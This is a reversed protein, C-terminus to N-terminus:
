RGAGGRGDPAAPAVWRELCDRIAIALYRADAGEYELAYPVGFVGEQLATDVWELAADALETCLADVELKSDLQITSM